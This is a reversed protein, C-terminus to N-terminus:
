YKLLERIKSSFDLFSIPNGSSRKLDVLHVKPNIRYLQISFQLIPSDTLNEEAMQEPSVAEGGNTNYHCKLNYSSSRIVFTVNVKSLVQIIKSFCEEATGNVRVGYNYDKTYGEALLSEYYKNIEIQYLDLYDKVPGFYLQNTHSEVPLTERMYDKLLLEYGIVFSYNKKLRIAEKIETLQLGKYDFGEAEILKSLVFENVKHSEDKNSYDKLVFNTQESSMFWPHRKIELISIRDLPNVKLLKSVLDKAERELGEPMVYAGKTIKDVIVAKDDDEFPLSGTLMAYLIVGCSWIDIEAGTYAKGLVIEPAAYHLSGCSTKLFIGDKMFNSLGFDVIKVSGKEDILINELKLDRHAVLNQHCYEVGDIIQRFYKRALGPEFGGAENVMEFLEGGPVYEMVVFINQATDLVQYLKIMNPHNFYKMLRIERQIKSSIKQSKILKKNIIKIAVKSGTYEHIALKVKGFGGTGLTRDLIYHDIKLQQHNTTM